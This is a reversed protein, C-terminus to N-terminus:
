LAAVFYAFSLRNQCVERRQSVMAVTSMYNLLKKTATVVTCEIDIHLNVDQGDPLKVVFFVPASSSESAAVCTCQLQFVSIKM